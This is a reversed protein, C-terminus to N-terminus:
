ANYKLYVPYVQEEERDIHIKLVKNLASIDKEFEAGSGGNPYKHFFGNAVRNLWALEDTFVSFIKASAHSEGLKPYLLDQEKQLHADLLQRADQLKSRVSNPLINKNRVDDLLSLLTRHDTKLATLLDSM